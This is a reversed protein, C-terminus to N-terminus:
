NLMFVTNNGGGNSAPNPMSPQQEKKFIADWVGTYNTITEEPTAILDTIDFPSLLYFM